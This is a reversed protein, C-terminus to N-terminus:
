IQVDFLCEYVLRRGFIHKPDNLGLRIGLAVYFVFEKLGLLRIWLFLILKWHHLFSLVYTRPSWTLDTNTHRVM